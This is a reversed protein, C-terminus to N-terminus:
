QIKVTVPVVDYTMGNSRLGIALNVSGNKLPIVESPVKNNVVQM